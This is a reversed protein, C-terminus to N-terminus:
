AQGLVLLMMLHEDDDPQWIVKSGQQSNDSLSVHSANLKNCQKRMLGKQIDGSTTNAKPSHLAKATVAINSEKDQHQPLM